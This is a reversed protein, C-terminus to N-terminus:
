ARQFHWHHTGIVKLKPYRVRLAASAKEATGPASGVLYVTHGDEAALRCIALMLDIGPIFEKLPQGLARSAWLIGSSEPTVLAANELIERLAADKGAELLMLTNGTVIHHPHTSRLFPRIHDLADQFSVADIRSGLIRLPGGSTRRPEGSPM